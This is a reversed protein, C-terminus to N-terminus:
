PEPLHESSFIHWECSGNWNVAVTGDELMAYRVGEPHFNTQGDEAPEGEIYSTSYRIESEDLCMVSTGWSAWYLTGDVMIAPEWCGEIGFLEYALNIDGCGDPVSAGPALPVDPDPGSPAAPTPQGNMEPMGSGTTTSGGNWEAAGGTNPADSANPAAQSNGGSNGGGSGIVGLHTVGYGLVLVLAFSAAWALWTGYNTRRKPPVYREAEQILGDDLLGMADLLHEATM